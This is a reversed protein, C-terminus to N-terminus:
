PCSASIVYWRGGIFNVVVRTGAAVFSNDDRLLWDHVEVDEGTDLEEDDSTGTGTYVQDWDWISMTAKGGKELQENLVGKLASRLGPTAIIWWTGLKDKAVIVWRGGESAEASLNHVLIKKTPNEQILSLYPNGDDDKFVRYVDCERRGPTVVDDATGTGTGFDVALGPVGTEPTKCVYLDPAFGQEDPVEPRGATSQNRRAHQDLLEQLRRRDNTGLISGELM